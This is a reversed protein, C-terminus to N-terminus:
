WMQSPAVVFVEDLLVELAMMWAPAVRELVVPNSSGGLVQQLGGM